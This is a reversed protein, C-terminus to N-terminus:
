SDVPALRTKGAPDEVLRYIRNGVRIRGRRQLTEGPSGPAAARAVGAAAEGPGFPSPLEALRTSVPPPTRPPKGGPPVSLLPATAEDAFYALIRATARLKGSEEGGASRIRVEALERLQTSALAFDLFGLVEGYGGSIELEAGAHEFLREYDTGPLWPQVSDVRSDARGAALSVTLDVAEPGAPMWAGSRHLRGRLEDGESLIKRTRAATGRAQALKEQLRPLRERAHTLQPALQGRVWLQMGLGSALLFLACAMILSVRTSWRGPNGTDLSRLEELLKM